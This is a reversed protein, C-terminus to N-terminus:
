SVKTKKEEAEIESLIRRVEARRAEVQEEMRKRTAKSDYEVRADPDNLLVDEFSLLNLRVKEGRSLFRVGEVNYYPAKDPNRILVQLRGDWYAELREVFYIDANDVCVETEGKPDAEQLLRILDKTKMGDVRARNLIGPGKGNWRIGRPLMMWLRGNVAVPKM